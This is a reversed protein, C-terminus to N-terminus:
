RGGTVGEHDPELSIDLGKYKFESVNKLRENGIYINSAKTEKGVVM